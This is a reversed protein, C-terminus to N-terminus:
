FSEFYYSSFLFFRGGTFHFLRNLGFVFDHISKVLPLINM